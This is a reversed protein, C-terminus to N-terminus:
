AEKLVVDLAACGSLRMCYVNVQESIRRALDEAASYAAAKSPMALLERTRPDATFWREEGLEALEFATSKWVMQQLDIEESQEPPPLCQTHSGSNAATDETEEDPQDIAQPEIPRTPEVVRCGWKLFHQRGKDTVSYEPKGDLGMRRTLFGENVMERLSDNVLKIPKQSIEFLQAANTAGDRIAASFVIDRFSM